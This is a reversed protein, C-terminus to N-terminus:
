TVFQTDNYLKLELEASSVFKPKRTLIEKAIDIVEMYKLSDGWEAWNFPPSIGLRNQILRDIPFHPPLAATGTCWRYKLYLNLIKQSYGFNLKGGCLINRSKGSFDALDRINQIHRTEDPTVMVYEADILKSVYEFLMSKFKKKEVQRIGTLYVKGARTLSARITSNWLQQHLYNKQEASTDMM